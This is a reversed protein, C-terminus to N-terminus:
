RSWTSLKKGAHSSHFFIHDPTHWDQTAYIPFGKRRLSDTARRVQEVCTLDTGAVALWGKKFITLDGQLDVVITAAKKEM